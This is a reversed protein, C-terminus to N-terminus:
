PRLGAPDVKLGDRRSEAARELRTPSVIRNTVCEARPGSLPRPMKRQLSAPEIVLHREHKEAQCKTQQGHEPGGKGQASWEYRLAVIQGGVALLDDRKVLEHAEM